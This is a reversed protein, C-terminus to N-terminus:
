EPSRIYLHVFICGAEEGVLERNVLHFTFSPSINYNLNISLLNARRRLNVSFIISKKTYSIDHFNVRPDGGKFINETLECVFFVIISVNEKLQM